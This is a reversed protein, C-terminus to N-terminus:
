LIINRFSTELATYEHQPITDNVRLELKTHTDTHESSTAVATTSPGGVNV